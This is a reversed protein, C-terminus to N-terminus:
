KILEKLLYKLLDLRQEPQEVLNPKTKVIDLCEDLSCEPLEGKDFISEATDPATLILKIDPFTKQLLKVIQKDKGKKFLSKQEQLQRLSEPSYWQDKQEKYNYVLIFNSKEFNSRLEKKNSSSNFIEQIFKYIDRKIKDDNAEEFKDLICNLLKKTDESSLKGKSQNTKPEFNQYILLISLDLDCILKFIYSDGNIKFRRDPNIMSILSRMKLELKKAIGMSLGEKLLKRLNDQIKPSLENKSSKLFSILYDIHETKTFINESKLVDLVDLIHKENWKDPKNKHCLNPSDSLTFFYKEDESEALQRLHLFVNWDPVSPLTLVTNHNVELLQWGTKNKKPHVCYIFQHTELINERYVCSEWLKSHTISECLNNVQIDSLKHIEVLKNLSFIFQKLTGQTVLIKNWQQIMEEEKEPIKDQLKGQRIDGLADIHKRGSDLFLYGHLTILYDQDGKCDIVEFEEIQQNKQNSSEAMPLFVAWQITLKAEKNQSKNKSFIVACHPISKDPVIIDEGNEEDIASRKSWFESQQLDTWFTNNSSTILNKFSDVRLVSLISEQGAFILRKKQNVLITGRLEHTNEKYNFGDDKTPYLFRKLQKDSVIIEFQKEPEDDTNIRWYRVEKLYRLMPLLSAIKQEMDDPFQKNISELTYFNALICREESKQNETQRIPIWLVFYKEQEILKTQVLFEELSKRDSDSLETWEPKKKDKGDSEAWPNLFLGRQDKSLSPSNAIFFFAECFHFISKQGLGFKGIKEKNGANFDVGFYQIAKYDESTFEGDNVFFLAPSKLLPHEVKDGLGGVVGFDLKAAKGDNANQIIEKIIPFGEQYREKLLHKLQNIFASPRTKFNAM